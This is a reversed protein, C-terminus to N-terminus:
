FWLYLPADSLIVHRFGFLAEPLLKPKLKGRCSFNYLRGKHCSGTIESSKVHLADVNAVFEVTLQKTYIDATGLWYGKENNISQIQSEDIDPINCTCWGQENCIWFSSQWHSRDWHWAFPKNKDM